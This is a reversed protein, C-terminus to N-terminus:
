VKEKYNTKRNKHPMFYFLEEEVPSVLNLKKTYLYISCPNHVIQCIQVCSVQYADASEDHEWLKHQIYDLIDLAYIKGM